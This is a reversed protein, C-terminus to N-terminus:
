DRYDTKCCREILISANSVGCNCIAIADDVILPKGQRLLLSVDCCPPSMRKKMIEVECPKQASKDLGVRM